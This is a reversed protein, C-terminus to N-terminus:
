QIKSADPNPKCLIRVEDREYDFQRKNVQFAMDGNNPVWIADGQQPVEQGKKKWRAVITETETNVIVIDGM